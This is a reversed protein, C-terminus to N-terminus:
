RGGGLWKWEVMRMLEDIQKNRSRGDAKMEEGRGASKEGWDEEEEELM